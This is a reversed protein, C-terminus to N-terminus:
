EFVQGRYMLFGALPFEISEVTFFVRKWAAEQDCGPQSGVLYFRFLKGGPCDSRRAASVLPGRENQSWFSGAPVRSLM